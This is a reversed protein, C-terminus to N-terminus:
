TGDGNIPPAYYSPLPAPGIYRQCRCDVRACSTAIAPDKYSPTHYSKHHTCGECIAQGTTSIRRRESTNITIIFVTMALVFSALFGYILGPIM